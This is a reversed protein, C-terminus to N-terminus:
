GGEGRSGLTTPQYKSCPLLPGWCSFLPTTQLLPVGWWWRAQLPGEALRLAEGGGAAAQAPCRGTRSAWAWSHLWTHACVGAQLKRGPLSVKCGFQLALRNISDGELVERELLLLDGVSQLPPGRRPQEKGRARLEMVEREEESAESDSQGSKFLYVHSGPFTRSTAPAQFSCSSGKSPKM